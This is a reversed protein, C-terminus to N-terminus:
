ARGRKGAELQALLARAEELLGEPVPHMECENVTRTLMQVLREHNNVCHVIHRANAEPNPCCRLSFGGDAGMYVAHGNAYWTTDNHEITKADADSRRKGLEIRRDEIRRKLESM